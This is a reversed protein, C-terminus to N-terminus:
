MLIDLFAFNPYIKTSCFLDAVKFFQNMSGTLEPAFCLYITM